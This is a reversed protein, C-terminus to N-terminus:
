PAVETTHDGHEQDKMLSRAESIAAAAAHRSHLTAGVIIPFGGVIFAICVRAEYQQWTFNGAQRALWVPVAMCLIIGIVVELWTLDPEHRRKLWAFLILAYITTALLLAAYAPVEDM